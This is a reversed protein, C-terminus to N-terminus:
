AGQASGAATPQAGNPTQTIEEDANQAAETPSADVAVGSDTVNSMLKGKAPKRVPLQTNLVLYALGLGVLLIGGFTFFYISLEYSM